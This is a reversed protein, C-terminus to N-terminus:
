GPIHLTRPQLRVGRAQHVPDPVTGAARAGRCPCALLAQVQQGAVHDEPVAGGVEVRRLVRHEVGVERRQGSATSAADADPPDDDRGVARVGPLPFPVPLVARAPVLPGKFRLAEGTTSAPVADQERDVQDPRGVLDEFTEGGVRYHGADGFQANLHRILELLVFVLLDQVVHAVVKSRPQAPGGILMILLYGPDSLFLL